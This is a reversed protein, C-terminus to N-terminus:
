HRGPLLARNPPMPGRLVLRSAAEHPILRLRRPFQEDWVSSRGRPFGKGLVEIATGPLVRGFLPSERACEMAAAGRNASGSRPLSRSRDNCGGRL